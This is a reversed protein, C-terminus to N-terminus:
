LVDPSWCPRGERMAMELLGSGPLLRTGPAPLPGVAGQAALIVLAGDREIRTVGAARAGFTRVLSEAVHSTVASVGPAESMTRAAQALQEAERQRREAEEYLQANEIAIAALDAFAQVLKVEATTFERANQDAITLAGITRGTSGLPVALLARQGGAIMRELIHDPWVFRKDNRVDGSWLPRGEQVARGTVGVGRPLALSGGSLLPDGDRAVVHLNGAPDVLTIAAFRIPLLVLVYEVIRQCVTVVGLRQTLLRAVGMLAEAERVSPRSMASNRGRKPLSRARRRKPSEAATM